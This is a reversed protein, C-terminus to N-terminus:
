FFCIFIAIDKSEGLESLTWKMFELDTSYGIKLLQNSFM